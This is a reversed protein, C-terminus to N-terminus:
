RAAARRRFVAQNREPLYFVQKWEDPHAQLERLIAVDEATPTGKALYKQYQGMHKFRPDGWILNWARDILVYKAEAPIPQGPEIFVLKRRLEKGYAPYLWSDFNAHMALTDDPRAVQDAITAARYNAFFPVRTPNEAVYLVWPLPQFRDFWTYFAGNIMLLLASLGVILSATIARNREALDRVLPAVTWVIVFIAIFCFYRPFGSFFGLPRLRIPLMLAFSLVGAISTLIRERQVLVSDRNKYVRIAVPLLLTLLTLLAGYDSFYIEWRPWFWREGRWPVYIDETMTDFPRLLMLVPVQWLNNWDGYGADSSSSSPLAAQNTHIINVIYVWGGLLFLAVPISLAIVLLHTRAPRFRHRVVAWALTILLAGAVLVGQVKTGGAAALSLLALTLPAIERTVLFRGTWLIAGLYFVNSLLDNKHAGIHLFILPVAATLLITAITARKDNWWREALAAALLLLVIFSATGIWETLADSGALLLVDALLYEYDAPSTPIRPDPAEFYRYEHAHALMVAKPLHYSLADHSLVPVVAGRWLAFVIWLLLPVLFALLAPTQLQHNVALAARRRWAFIAAPVSMVFVAVILPTRDFLQMWSLTWSLAIPIIFSLIGISAAREWPGPARDSGREWLMTSLAAAAFVSAAAFFFLAATM